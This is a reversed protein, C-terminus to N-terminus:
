AARGSLAARDIAGDAGRPIAQVAVITAPLAAPSLELAALHQSFAKPNLTTGPRPVVAAAVRDGFVPDSLAFAAADLAGPYAAFAGDLAALDVSLRGVLAGGEVSGAVVFSAPDTSVLRGAIGTAIWGDAEGRSRAPAPAAADYSEAPVAAGRAEIEGTTLAGDGARGAKRISGKLRLDIFPADMAVSGIAGVPIPRATAATRARAVLAREGLIAVDTAERSLSQGDGGAGHEVLVLRASSGIVGLATDLPAAIVSPAIVVDAEALRAADAIRSTEVPHALALTGSTLLWPVLAGGIGALGTPAFASLFRTGPEFRAEVLLHCGAAIWHNHSRPVARPVGGTECFTFTVVHDAPNGRRAVERPPPLTEMESFVRDLDVLGDPLSGGTGFVFRISFLDAAVDRLRRALPEEEVRGVTVVGKAGVRNLAAVLDAKRWALPLPAAVLGARAVALLAIVADSTAPMQLGVVTDVPLGIAGLFGALQDVRQDLDRFTLTRPAGDTWEQRDPADVLAIRDPATKAARELLQDLTVRGWLGSRAYAAAIAEDTLIM